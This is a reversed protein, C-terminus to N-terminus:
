GKSRTFVMEVVKTNDEFNTIDHVEFVHEDDSLFRTVYKVTKDHEDTIPEDMLGYSLMVKGSQDLAGESRLLTTTMSDVGSSVFRKKYNDYGLIRFSRYPAGMLSGEVEMALWRGEMLWRYTAKGKSTAFSSGPGGMAISISVEWTGVLSALKGHMPGPQSLEMYRQYGAALAPDMAPADSSTDAAPMALLTALLLMPGTM